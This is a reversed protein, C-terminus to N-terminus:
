GSSGFTSANALSRKVAPTINVADNISVAHRSEWATFSGSQSWRGSRYACPCPLGPQERVVSALSNDNAKGADDRGICDQEDAGPLKASGDCGSTGNDAYSLQISRQGGFGFTVPEVGTASM